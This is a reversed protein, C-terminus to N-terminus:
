PEVFIITNKLIAHVELRPFVIITWIVSILTFRAINTILARYGANYKRRIQYKVKRSDKNDGQILKQKDLIM